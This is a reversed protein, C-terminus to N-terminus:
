VFLAELHEDGLFAANEALLLRDSEATTWNRNQARRHGLAKEIRLVAAASPWVVKLWRWRASPDDQHLCSTCFFRREHRSAMQAGACNAMPCHVIWRGHNVEAYAAPAEAVGEPARYDLYHEPWTRRVLNATVSGGRRDFDELTLLKPM